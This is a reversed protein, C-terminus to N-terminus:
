DSNEGNKMEESKILKLVSGEAKTAEFGSRDWEELNDLLDIRFKNTLHKCTLVHIRSELAANERVLALRIESWDNVGAAALGLIWDSAGTEPKFGDESETLTINIKM